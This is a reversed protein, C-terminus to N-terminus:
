EVPDSFEVFIEVFEQQQVYDCLNELNLWDSRMMNSGSLFVFMPLWVKVSSLACHAIM